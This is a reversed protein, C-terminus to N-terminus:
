QECEEKRFESGNYDSQVPSGFRNISQQLNVLGIIASGERIELGLAEPYEELPASVRPAAPMKGADPHALSRPRSEKFNM